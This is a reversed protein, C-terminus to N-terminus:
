LYQFFHYKDSFYYINLRPYLMRHLQLTEYDNGDFDTDTLNTASNWETWHYGRMWCKNTTETVMLHMLEEKSPPSIHQDLLASYSIIFSYKTFLKM